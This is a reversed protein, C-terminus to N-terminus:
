VKTSFYYKLSMYCFLVNKSSNSQSFIQCKAITVLLYPQQGNIVILSMINQFFSLHLSMIGRIVSLITKVIKNTHTKDCLNQSTHTIFAFYACSACLASWLNDSSCIYLIALIEFLITQLCKSFACMCNHACLSLCFKIYM